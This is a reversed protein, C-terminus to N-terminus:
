SSTPPSLTAGAPFASAGFTLRGYARDSSPPIATASTDLEAIIDEIAALYAMKEFTVVGSHSGGDFSQGTLTVTDTAAAFVEDALARLQALDAATGAAYKRRLYRRATDIRQPDDM